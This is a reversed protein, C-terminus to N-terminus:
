CFNDPDEDDDLLEQKKVINKPLLIRSAAAREDNHIQYAQKMRNINIRQVLEHIVIRNPYDRGIICQYKQKDSSMAKWPEYILNSPFQRLEPCYKKIYDGRPDTKKGFASPNYIRNYQYNFASASMWLWNGANTAWDADLLLEEFVQQGKEWSQWLDGRTLFCAVTHRGLHHIWGEQRLQRMIADIFPYGTRGYAWADLLSQDDYWPIQRCIKNDVMKDFNQEAAAAVQYWEM